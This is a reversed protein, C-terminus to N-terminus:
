KVYIFEKKRRKTLMKQIMIPILERSIPFSCNKRLCYNVAHKYHNGLANEFYNKCEKYLDQETNNLTSNM